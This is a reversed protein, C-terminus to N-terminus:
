PSRFEVQFRAFDALDVAADGTFDGCLCHDSLVGGPVTLCAAVFVYDALDVDSDGDTDGEAVNLDVHM